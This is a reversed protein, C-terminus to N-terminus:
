RELELVVRYRDGRLVSVVYEILRGHQDRTIREVSFGPAGPRVGLLTAMSRHLGIPEYTEIARTPIVGYRDQLLRYLSEIPEDTMALGPFLRAPLFAKQVGMPEGDVLRLRELVVVPDGPNLNLRAAVEATAPTEALTLTRNSTTQGRRSIEETFSLLRVPGHEIKPQAVFIGKGQRRILLGEQALASLAQVVTTRSVGYLECLERITPIQDGPHWKGSAIQERLIERLQYHLPVPSETLLAMAAQM